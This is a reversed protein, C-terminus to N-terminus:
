SLIKSTNLPQRILKRAARGEAEGKIVKLNLGTKFTRSIHGSELKTRKFVTESEKHNTNDSIMLKIESYPPKLVNVIEFQVFFLITQCM